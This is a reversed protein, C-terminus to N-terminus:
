SVSWDFSNPLDGILYKAGAGGCFDGTNLGQYLISMATMDM